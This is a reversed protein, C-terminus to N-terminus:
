TEELSTRMPLIPLDTLSKRKRKEKVNLKINWKMEDIENRIKMEIKIRAIEM